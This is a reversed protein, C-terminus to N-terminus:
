QYLNVAPNGIKSLTPNNLRLIGTVKVQNNHFKSDCTEILNTATLIYFNNKTEEEINDDRILYDAYIIDENNITHIEDRLEWQFIIPNSRFLM